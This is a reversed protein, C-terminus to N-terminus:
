PAQVQLITPAADSGNYAMSAGFSSTTTLRMKRGAPTPEFTSGDAAFFKMAGNAAAITKGRTIAFTDGDPATQLYRRDTSYRDFGLKLIGTAPDFQELYNGDADRPAHFVLVSYDISVSAIDSGTTSAWLKLRIQTTTAYAVAYRGRGDSETQIPSGNLASTGIKVVFDPIVGLDHEFLLEDSVASIFTLTGNAEVTFTSGAAATIADHDITADEDFQVELPDLSSHFKIKDLNGDPDYAPAHRAATPDLLDGGGDAEDYLAVVGLSPWISYYLATM